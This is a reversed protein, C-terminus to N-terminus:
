AKKGEELIWDIFSIISKAIEYERSYDMSTKDAYQQMADSYGKFFGRREIIEEKTRM